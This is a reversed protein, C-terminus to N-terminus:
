FCHLSFLCVNSELFNEEWSVNWSFSLSPLCGGHFSWVLPSTELCLLHLFNAFCFLWSWLKLDACFCLNYWLCSVPPSRLPRPSSVPLCLLCFAWTCPLWSPVARPSLPETRWSGGSSCVSPRCFTTGQLTFPLLLAAEVAPPQGKPWQSQEKLSHQAPISPAQLFDLTWPLFSQREEWPSFNDTHHAQTALSSDLTAVDSTLLAWPLPCPM